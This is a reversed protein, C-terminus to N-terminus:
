SIIFEMDGAKLNLVQIPYDEFYVSQIDDSKVVVYSDANKHQISLYDNGLKIDGVEASIRMENNFAFVRSFTKEDVIQKLKEFDSERM